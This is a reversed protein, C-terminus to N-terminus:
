GKFTVFCSHFGDAENTKNVKSSDFFLGCTSNVNGECKYCELGSSSNTSPTSEIPGPAPPTSAPDDGLGQAAIRSAFVAVVFWVTAVLRKSNLTDASMSRVSYFLMIVNENCEARYRM